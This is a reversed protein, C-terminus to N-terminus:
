VPRVERLIRKGIKIHPIENRRVAEYAFARSIGLAEAAEEVSMTLRPEPSPPFQTFANSSSDYDLFLVESLERVHASWYAADVITM